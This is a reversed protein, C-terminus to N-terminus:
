ARAKHGPRDPGQRRSGSLSRVGAEHARPVKERDVEDIQLGHDKALVFLSQDDFKNYLETEPTRASRPQTPWSRQQNPPMGSFRKMSMLYIVGTFVHGTVFPIRTPKPLVERYRRGARPSDLGDVTHQRL